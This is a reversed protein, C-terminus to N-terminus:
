YLKFMIITFFLIFNYFNRMLGLLILEVVIAIQEFVFFYFIIFSFEGRNIM